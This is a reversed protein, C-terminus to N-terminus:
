PKGNLHPINTAQIIMSGSLAEAEAPSIAKTGWVLRLDVIGIICAHGCNICTIPKEHAVLVASMRPTNVLEFMPSKVNFRQGCGECTIHITVAQDGSGDLKESM